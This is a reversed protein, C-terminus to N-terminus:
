LMKMTGKYFGIDLSIIMAGQKKDMDGTIEEIGQVIHKEKDAPIIAIITRSRDKREQMFGIFEAFLPVNSIYRGMGSSELITAGDIGQGLFYELIDHLLEEFYLIVIILKMQEKTNLKTNLDGIRRAILEFLIQDSKASLLENQINPKNAISSISALVKLHDDTAEFPGIIFFFLKCKKKDISDFVIGRNCTAVGVVFEDIGKVRAHPFALCRGLGTSGEDERALLYDYIEKEGLNSLSKAKCLLKSIEMLAEEKNTASLEVKCCEPKLVNILKM